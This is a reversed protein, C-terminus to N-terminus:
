HEGHSRSNFGKKGCVGCAVKKKPTSKSSTRPAKKVSKTKKTTKKKV